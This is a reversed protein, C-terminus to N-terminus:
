MVKDDVQLLEAIKFISATRLESGDPCKVVECVLVGFYSWCKIILQRSFRFFQIMVTKFLNRGM